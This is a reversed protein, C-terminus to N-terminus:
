DLKRQVIKGVIPLSYQKGILAEVMLFIWLFIFLIWLVNMDISIPLGIKGFLQGLLLNPIAFVILGLMPIIEMSLLVIFLSLFTFTSQMAHFKVFESKREMAWFFVGTVFFLFYCLFGVINIPLGTSSKQKEEMIAEKRVSQLM